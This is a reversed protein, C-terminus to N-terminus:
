INRDVDLRENELLMKAYDTLKGNKQVPRNFSYKAM